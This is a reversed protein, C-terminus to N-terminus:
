GRSRGHCRWICGAQRRCRAATWGPRPRPRRYWETGSPWRLGAAATTWPSLNSAHPHALQRLTWHVGLLDFGPALARNPKVGNQASVQWHVFWGQPVWLADGPLLVAGEAGTSGKCGPWSDPDLREPDAMTYGDYPSHIPFPYLCEFASTPPLLLVRSRGAGQLMMRDQPAYCAPLLSGARGLVCCMAASPSGLCGAQVVQERVRAWDIWSALQAALPGAAELGVLARWPEEAGGAAADSAPALFQWRLALRHHEWATATPLLDGLPMQRVWTEPQRLHYPSAPENKSMDAVLFRDKRTECCLVPVTMGGGRGLLAALSGPKARPLVGSNRWIFCGGGRRISSGIRHSDKPRRLLDFQTRVPSVAISPDLRRDFRVSPVPVPKHHSM